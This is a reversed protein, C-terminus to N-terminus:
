DLGCNDTVIFDSNVEVTVLVITDAKLSPDMDQWAQEVIDAWEPHLTWVHLIQKVWRDEASVNTSSELIGTLKKELLATADALTYDTVFPGLYARTVSVGVKQGDILVVFDTMDGVTDYSVETEMKYLSAGECEKLAQLSMVETCMSSGGANESNYRTWADESLLSPDFSPASDFSYSNVFFSPAEEELQSSLEGCSGTIEGYAFAPTRTMRISHVAIDTDGRNWFQFYWTGPTLEIGELTLVFTDDAEAEEFDVIVDANHSFEPEYEYQLPGGARFAAALNVPMAGMFDELFSLLGSSTAVIELTISQTDEPVEFSYQLYAPAGGAFTEGGLTQVGPVFDPFQDLKDVYPKVRNNCGLIGREQFIAQVASDMPPDLLAAEAITAMAAEEFCTDQSFTLLANFLILDAKESGLLEHIAWLASSYIQGDQHPEGFYDEPCHFLQSIDRGSDLAVLAYESVVPDGMVSSSFYDAYAENVATPAADPGYADFGTGFLREGGVVAHTYEHYIVDADYAFDLSAGQMFFIADNQFPLDLTDEIGLYDKLLQEGLEEVAEFTEGPVFMANDFTVWGQPIGDLPNAMEIYAQLNVYGELSFDMGTFGHTQRFYDHIHNMHYFLMLEAFSDDPDLENEPPVIHLYNGQQNPFVTKQIDCLQAHVLGLLPIEYEKTWGGERNLCNFVNAYPGTMSGDEADINVLTVPQTQWDDKVPNHIFLSALNPDQPEIEEEADSVGDEEVDGPIQDKDVGDEMTIDTQASTDGTVDQLLTDETTSNGSGSCSALALALGVLMFWRTLVTSTKRM